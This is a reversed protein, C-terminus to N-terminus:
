RRGTLPYDAPERVSHLVSVLAAVEEGEEPPLQQRDPDHQEDHLEDDTREQVRHGAGLVRRGCRRDVVHHVGRVRGPHEDGREQHEEHLGAEHHQLGAEGAGPLGDVDQQLADDVRAQAGQQEPGEAEGEHEAGAVPHDAM